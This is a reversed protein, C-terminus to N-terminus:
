EQSLPVVCHQHGPWQYGAPVAKQTNQKEKRRNLKLIMVM